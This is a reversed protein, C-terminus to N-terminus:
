AFLKDKLASWDIANGQADKAAVASLFTIIETKRGDDLKEADIACRPISAPPFAASEYLNEKAFATISKPNENIWEKSVKLAAFLANMFATDASLEKKVFLGAQPYNEANDSCQAYQEQMNMEANCGIAAKFATAAPEGVVAFDVQSDALLTKAANGDAVYRVSIENKAADPVSGSDTLMTIGKKSMVYRFVLGPVGTQGICAIKKGKIDDITLTGGEATKGVLYLSGKVAISVLKYDAGQRILNAGANVPMIVIDSKKDSMEVAINSASVVEYEMKTGDITKNDEVLRLMALAPTGEPASFRLVTNEDRTTKNDNCATFLLLSSILVASLVILTLFKIKKNM